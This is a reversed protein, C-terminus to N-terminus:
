SDVDSNNSDPETSSVDDVLDGTERSQASEDDDDDDLSEEDSSISRKKSKKIGEVREKTGPLM